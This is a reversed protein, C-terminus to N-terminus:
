EMRWHQLVSTVSPCQAVCTMMSWYTADPSCFHSRCLPYWREGGVCVCIESSRVKYKVHSSVDFASKIHPVSIPLTKKQSATHPVSM